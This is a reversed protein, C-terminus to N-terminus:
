FTLNLGVSYIASVPYTSFDIGNDLPNSNAVEPSYGTFDTITFINTGSMYLRASKIRAKSAVSNPIKYGLTVNRLRFFSGDQLFRTSHNFNYGGASARPESNSTGEGTWRNHVHAEFNYLAPRVTEKYNYIKNGTQGQFDASLDFSKYGISLNMGYLFKPISSGLSTRDDPTLANDNNTDVFRLDGIGAQSLHPYNDLESQNQFVGDVVYGYFEGVSTGVSTATTQSGNFLKADDAGSGFVELATNKITTGVTGIRYRIDNWTSTWAVNYEFGKNEVEAANYTIKAGEGNGLFGPVPLPILIGKTTKHYYDIEATLKDDFFGIELGADTQYTEEWILNENGSVGYSSGPYVTEGVGFVAGLGNDVGSYQDDYDIKENGVIGWSARVKLNSLFTFQEAFSENIANWGIAVSPFDAYRNKKSFKSSGDRRYTATFLYKSDFAYNIRFLYSLMTYNLNIDVTNSTLSSVINDPNIYWFDEDDRLLNEGVLKLEESNAKQATYGALADFRHKGIERKYNLTNEWLLYVREASTKNLDSVSNEQTSNVFFVPTFSKDKKYEWDASIISKFTLGKIIDVEGFMSSVTRLGNTTSNTYKIDALFNGVGEVPSFSGDPQFPTVTPDARYVVFPANGATNNTKYPTFGINTGVRVRDSFHFTNNFKLTVREYAAKDIVGEQKFYGLGVYYQMKESAGTASVQYNQIPAPQFLLDQWDTNKLADINNFSGPTIENVVQAYQRANLLEINNQVYQMSYEALVNISPSQGRKGIKTTVMVVGNAGKAGYIATASADKLVEISEIDGANLYTIDDLQVGDVVYIPNSNNFTGTGRIRVIPAQGPAGSGTTIQVGAVKGQLAQMPNVAPVKVIEESKISSVSGTLDSKRVTGYGIVVVEDLTKSDVRLTVDVVSQGAVPVKQSEFGMFSFMLVAENEALEISYQGDVNTVTGKSTGEVIVNVGPLPLNDEGSLVKGSVVRSQAHSIVPLLSIIFVTFLRIM